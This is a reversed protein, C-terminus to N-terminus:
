PVYQMAVTNLLIFYKKFTHQKYKINGIEDFKIIFIYVSINLERILIVIGIYKGNFIGVM